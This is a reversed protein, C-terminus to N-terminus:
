ILKTSYADACTFCWGAPWKQNNCLVQLLLFEKCFVGTFLKLYWVELVNEGCDHERVCVSSISYRSHMGTL